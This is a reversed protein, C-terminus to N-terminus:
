SGIGALGGAAADVESNGVQPILTNGAAVGRNSGGYITPYAKKFMAIIEDPKMKSVNINTTSRIQKEIAKARNAAKTNSKSNLKAEIYDQLNKYDQLYGHDIPNESDSLVESPKKGLAYAYDAASIENGEGDYFGFGGDDRKVKQYNSKKAEKQKVIAQAQNALTNVAGSSQPLQFSSQHLQALEPFSGLPSTPTQISAAGLTAQRLAEDM